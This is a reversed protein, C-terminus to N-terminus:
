RSFAGIAPVAVPAVEFANAFRSIRERGCPGPADRTAKADELNAGEAFEGPQDVTEARSDTSLAEQVAGPNHVETEGLPVGAFFNELITAKKLTRKVGAVERENGEFLKMGVHNENEVGGGGLRASAVRGCGAVRPKKEANLRGVADRNKQDIRFPAGDSRNMGAPSARELADRGFGDPFHLHFEAALRGIQKGGEARSDTPAAIFHAGFDGRL